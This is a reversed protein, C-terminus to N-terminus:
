IGGVIQGNNGTTFTSPPSFGDNVTSVHTPTYVNVDGGGGSYSYSPQTISGGSAATQYAHSMGAAFSDFSGSSSSGGSVAGTFSGNSGGTPRYPDSAPSFASRSYSDFTSPSAPQDLWHSVNQVHEIQARLPHDAPVPGSDLGTPIRVARSVVPDVTVAAVAMGAAYDRATPGEGPGPGPFFRPADSAISHPAQGAMEPSGETGVHVGFPEQSPGAIDQEMADHMAQYRVESPQKAWGEETDPLSSDHPYSPWYDWGRGDGIAKKIAERESLIKGNWVSPINYDRGNHQTGIQYLTSTSGDENRVLNGNHLSDLHHEYLHQEQPTLNLAKIAEASRDHGGLEPSGEFGTKHATMDSNIHSFTQPGVVGDQTIGADAQYNKVAEYTRNGFRGDVKLAHGFRDTAGLDNLASQLARTAGANGSGKRLGHNGIGAALAAAGGSRDGGVAVDQGGAGAIMTGIAVPKAGDLGARVSIPSLGSKPGPNVAGYWEGWGHVAAHNLAFDVGKQWDSGKRPDIGAALAKDGLGGGIRLQFPGYSTERKGDKVVYSQQLPDSLGGEGKAVRVAVNPDIGRAAAAQRIYSEVAGGKAAPTAAAAVAQPLDVHDVGPMTPILTANKIGGLLAQGEADMDGAGLVQANSISAADIAGSKLGDRLAFAGGSFAIVGSGPNAKLAAALDSTQKARDEGPTKILVPDYGLSKAKAMLAANIESVKAGEVKELGGLVYMKPKDAMAVAVPDGAAGVPKGAVLTAGRTIGLVKLPDSTLRQAKGWWQTDGGAQLKKWGLDGPQAVEFHLHGRGITGIAQGQDVHQGVKVDIGAHPAYRYMNGDDGKVIAYHDYGGPDNSVHLVTGGIVAVAKSGNAAHFDVGSHHRAGGERDHGLGNGIDGSTPSVYKGSGGTKLLGSEKMSNLADQGTLAVPDTSTKRTSPPATEIFNHFSKVAFSDPGGFIEANADVNKIVTDRQDQPMAVFISQIEFGTKVAGLTGAPPLNDRTAKIQAPDGHLIADAFAQAPTVPGSSDKYALAKARAEAPTLRHSVEGGSAAGERRTEQAGTLPNRGALPDNSPADGVKHSSPDTLRDATGFWSVHNGSDGSQPQADPVFALKRKKKRAM